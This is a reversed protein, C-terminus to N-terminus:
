SGKEPGACTLPDCGKICLGANHEYNEHGCLCKDNHAKAREGPAEVPSPFFEVAISAGNETYKSVGHSRLMIVAAELETLTM